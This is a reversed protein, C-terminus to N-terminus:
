ALEGEIKEVRDAMEKEMEAYCVGCYETGSEDARRILCRECLWADDLEESNCSPCLPVYGYKDPAGEIAEDRPFLDGCSCAFHTASM